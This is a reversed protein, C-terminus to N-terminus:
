YSSPLDTRDKVLLQLASYAEISEVRGASMSADEGVFMPSISRYTSNVAQDKAWNWQDKVYAWYESTTLATSEDTSLELLGILKDYDDTHDVPAKLNVHRLINSDSKASELMKDLEAIVLKRYVDQAKIFEDRHNDRNAKILSLLTLRPVNAYEM